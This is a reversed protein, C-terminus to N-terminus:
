CKSKEKVYEKEKVCIRKKNMDFKKVSNKTEM